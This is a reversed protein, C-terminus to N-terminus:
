PGTHGIHPKDHVQPKIRGFEVAHPGLLQAGGPGPAIRPAASTEYPTPQTRLRVANGRTSRVAGKLFHSM